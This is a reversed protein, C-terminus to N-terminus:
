KKRQLLIYAILFCIIAFILLKFLSNQIDTFTGGNVFLELFSDLAWSMPSLESIEQMSQPM